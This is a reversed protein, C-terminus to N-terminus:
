NAKAINRLLLLWRLLNSTKEHSLCYDYSLKICIQNNTNRGVDVNGCSYKLLSFFEKRRQTKGGVARKREMVM